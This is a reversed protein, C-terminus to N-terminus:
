VIREKLAKAVAEPGSHVHLKDYVKKIHTRITDISLMLEDAIMKYSYGRVLGELVQRERETLSYKSNVAAPKQFFDVMRRAMGSSIPAGGAAAERIATVMRDHPTKKLLYGSAGAQLSSFLRESDDFVTFMIIQVEPKAALVEPIAAIGGIGPMDIDMIVVDPQELTTQARAQDANEHAGVLLFDDTLEVLLALTQRLETSDEFISIRILEM